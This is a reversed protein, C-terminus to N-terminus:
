LDSRLRGFLNDLDDMFLSLRLAGVVRGGSELPASMYMMTKGLTSSYRVSTQERGQLAAYIEPRYLHNELDRPETESDALVAGDPQIVTIRAAVKKGMDSVYDEVPGAGRGGLYGVIPGELVAALRELRGSQEQVYRSRMPRPAVVAVALAFFLIVAAYGAFMRLFLSPKM